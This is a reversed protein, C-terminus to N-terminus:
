LTSVSNPNTSRLRKEHSLFLFPSLFPFKNYLYLYLCMTVVALDLVHDADVEM